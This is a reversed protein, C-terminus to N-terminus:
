EGEGSGGGFERLFDGREELWGGTELVLETVIGGEEGEGVSCADLGGGIPLLAALFDAGEPLVFDALPWREQFFRAEFDEVGGVAGGERLVADADFDGGVEEEVAIEEDRRASFAGGCGSRRGRRERRYFMGGDDDGEIIGFGADAEGGVLKAVEGRFEGFAAEDRKSDTRGAAVGALGVGGTRLTLREMEEAVDGGIAVGGEGGEGVDIGCADGNDAMGVTAFPGHEGGREM